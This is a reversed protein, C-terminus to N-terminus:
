SAMKIKIEQWVAKILMRADADITSLLAFYCIGGFATLGLIQHVKAKSPQLGLSEKTLFLVGSMIISAFVYKAINKWPIETKVIKRVMAYLMLFMAFRAASNIIAVALASQVPQSQTYTTLVYYTLPITIASHIYPLSFAIFLRSKILDKFSIKAEEDVREYGYLVFSYLTSITVVLSDIALVTLVPWAAKYEEKLITLYLKPLTLAGATMPITFMLVTKISTTIDQSSKEALLKPYLAFALFSSYTIINAIQYAAGYNSRATEGGYTFLMIFIFSAIQNGLVNYINAISGKIWEKVYAWKVSQKFDEALLKLYFIIQTAIATTLSIIAGELPKQLRIILIYGLLVKCVEAILLGYGLTQPKKARLCAEFANLLHLEVIQISVLMYLSIYNQVDLATVILPILPLYIITAAISVALNAIIGTKVAGKEQRAVFRMTWFPLIGALITFYALVDNINFWVGYESPNTSRAIMYQFALGTAVSVMKAAFIVFGSYQVSIEDKAM